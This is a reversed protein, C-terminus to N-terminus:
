IISERINMANQRGTAATSSVIRQNIIFRLPDMGNQCTAARMVTLVMQLRGLRQVEQEM